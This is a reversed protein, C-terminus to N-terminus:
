RGLALRPCDHQDHADVTFKRGIMHRRTIQASVGISAKSM